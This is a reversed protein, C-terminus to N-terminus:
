AQEFFPLVCYAIIDKAVEAKSKLEYHKITNHKGVISIQNKDLRFVKNEASLTNLVMFNANKNALKKQANKLGNNTELAFGILLQQASKKTGVSALIDITPKLEIKLDEGEKKIKETAMYAPTYDAVAAAMIFADQSDMNDMVAEYMQQASRVNIRQVNNPLPENMEVPGCVLCVKAGLAALEKALAFGMKGSSYNGIFRVPDINEYTPGATILINKEKLKLKENFYFDLRALIQEPEAMRGEGWLGSALEGNEPQIVQVGDSIIQKINRQTGAHKWMDLDMAPAVFVPCRASLYVALLLNDCLGTAMKALTNATTPAIVLADAWLGMEVHNVWEGHTNKEFTYYVPNKSLTALTLPSVFKIAEPSLILRVEAGQKILLRALIAAKYAAISASVGLVIKKGELNM